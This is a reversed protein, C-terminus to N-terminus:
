ATPKDPWDISTSSNADIRSLIVRYKKWLPLAAAEDDTAMELDVADQLVSIRQTAEDMLSTKLSLNAGLAAAKRDAIQEESLPPASFEKGDYTYGINIATGEPVEVTSEGEGFEMPSVNPGDWVICNTVVGDRVIAWSGM